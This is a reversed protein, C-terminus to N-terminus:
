PSRPFHSLVRRQKRRPKRSRFRRRDRKEGNADGAPGFSSPDALFKTVASRIVLKRDSLDRDLDAEVAARIQRETTSNMDAGRLFVVTREVIQSDSVDASAAKRKEADRAAAAAARGPRRADGACSRRREPVRLQHRWAERAVRADGASFRSPRGASVPLDRRRVRVRVRHAGSRGLIHNRVGLYEAIARAGKVVHNLDAGGHALFRPPTWGAEAATMAELLRGTTRTTM